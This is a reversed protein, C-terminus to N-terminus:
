ASTSSRVVGDSAETMGLSGIEDEITTRSVNISRM